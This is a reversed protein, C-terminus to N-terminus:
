NRTSFIAKWLARLGEFIMWGVLELASEPVDDSARPHWDCWPRPGPSERGISRFTKRPGLLGARTLSTKLKRKDKWSDMSKLYCREVLFDLFIEPFFRRARLGLRGVAAGPGSRNRM